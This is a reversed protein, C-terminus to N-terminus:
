SHNRISRSNFCDIMKAKMDNVKLTKGKQHAMVKRFILLRVDQELEDELGQLNVSIGKNYRNCRDADRRRPSQPMTLLSLGGMQAPAFLPGRKM